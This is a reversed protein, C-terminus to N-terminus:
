PTNLNQCTPSPAPVVNADTNERNVGAIRIPVDMAIATPTYPIEKPASDTVPSGARVPAPLPLRANLLQPQGPKAGVLDRPM